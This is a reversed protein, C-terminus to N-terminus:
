AWQQRKEREKGIRSDERESQVGLSEGNRPGDSNLCPSMSVDETPHTAMLNVDVRFSLSGRVSVTTKSM